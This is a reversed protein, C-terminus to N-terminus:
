IELEATVRRVFQDYSEAMQFGQLELAERYAKASGYLVWREREPLDRFAAYSPWPGTIISAVARQPLAQAHNPPTTM